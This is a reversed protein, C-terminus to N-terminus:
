NWEVLMEFANTNDVSPVFSLALIKKVHVLDNEDDRYDALHLEQM